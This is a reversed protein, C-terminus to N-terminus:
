AGGRRMLRSAIDALLFGGRARKTGIFLGLAPILASVAMDQRLRQLAREKLFQAEAEIEGPKSRIALTGLILAVMLDFVLLLACAWLSGVTPALALWAAVHALCLAGVAFVTGAFGYLGRRIQRRVMAQVRLKEAQAAAKALKVARM